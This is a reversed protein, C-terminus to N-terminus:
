PKLDYRGSVDGGKCVVFRHRHDYDEFVAQVGGDAKCFREAHTDTGIVDYPELTIDAPQAYDSAMVFFFGVLVVAIAGIAIGVIKTEM